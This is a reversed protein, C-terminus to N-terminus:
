KRLPVPHFPFFSDLRSVFGPPEGSPRSSWIPRFDWLCDHALPLLIATHNFFYRRCRQKHSRDRQEACRYVSLVERDQIFNGILHDLLVLLGSALLQPLLSLLFALCWVASPAPLEGSTSIRDAFASPM